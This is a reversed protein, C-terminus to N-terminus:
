FSCYESFGGVGVDRERAKGEGGVGKRFGM